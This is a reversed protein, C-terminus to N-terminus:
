TDAHLIRQDPRAKFATKITSCSSLPKCNPKISNKSAAPKVSTKPMMSMILKAWPEKYM